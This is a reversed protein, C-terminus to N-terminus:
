QPTVKKEQEVNKIKINVNSVELDTARKIALKINEQLKSSTEKIIANDKIIAVINIIVDKDADFEIKVKNM